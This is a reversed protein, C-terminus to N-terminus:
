AGMGGAKKILEFTRRQESMAEEFEEETVPESEFSNKPPDGFDFSSGELEMWWRKTKKDINPFVAQGLIIINGDKRVGVMNNEDRYFDFVKMKGIVYNVLPHRPRLHENPEFLCEVEKILEASSFVSRLTETKVEM